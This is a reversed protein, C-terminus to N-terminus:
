NWSIYLILGTSCYEYEIFVAKVRNSDVYQNLQETIDHMANM